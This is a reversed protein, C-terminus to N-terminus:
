DTPDEDEGSPIIITTVDFMDRASITSYSGPLNSGQSDDEVLEMVAHPVQLQSLLELSPRTLKGAGTLSIRRALIVYKHEKNPLPGSWVRLDENDPFPPTPRGKGAHKGEYFFWTRRFHAQRLRAKRQEVTKSAHGELPPTATSFYKVEIKEPLVKWVEALYWDQSDPSDRCAIIEGERLTDDKGAKYLCPKAEPIDSPDIIDETKPMEKEPVIMAADRVFTLTRKRGNEDSSEYSLEYSRSSERGNRDKLKGLVIAPGCYHELHKAKRGRKEVQSQTPPKYFFVKSGTPIEDAIPKGAQNLRESTMRRHWESNQRAVEVLRTSLELVKQTVTTDWTTAGDEVWEAGEETTFQLRPSLRADSVTRARLGHGCEFPTCQLVSSYTTNHAFAIAQLNIKINRYDEDSFKRLMSNLTQMFREVIANARPNYGGTSVHDIGLYSNLKAVVGYIFESAADSRLRLPVGKQFILGTLLCKAVTEEKRNPTFWLTVERTCLDIAVLIYGQKHAYFDIGYSQRPLLKERRYTFPVSLHKRRIKALQCQRCAGCVRRVLSEMDPWWFKRSLAELTRTADVHLLEQHTSNILRIRQKKPVAIRVNGKSDVYASLGAPFADPLQAKSLKSGKPPVPQDSVWQDYPDPAEANGYVSLRKAVPQRHSRTRHSKNGRTSSRRTMPSDEGTSTNTGARTQVYTEDTTADARPRKNVASPRPPNRAAGDCLLRDIETLSQPQMALERMLDISKDDDILLNDLHATQDETYLVQDYPKSHWAPLNIVWTQGAKSMVVKTTKSLAERVARDQTGDASREIESILATPVLYAFPKGQRLLNAVRHPLKDCYTAAILFDYSGHAEPKLTNVPNTPDRWRQVLRAAAVTDKEAFVRITRASKIEQPLRCLLEKFVLPLLVMEMTHGKRKLRSLGDSVVMTEGRKHLTQVISNLDATEHIRWTSLQGKNSLSTEGVSPLHDTYVTTGAKPDQTEILNRFYQLTLLRALTERYFCPLSKEHPTHAKSIWSIM